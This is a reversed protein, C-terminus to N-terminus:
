ALLRSKIEAPKTGQVKSWKTIKLSMPLAIIVKGEGSKGGAVKGGGNQRFRNRPKGQGNNQKTILLKITKRTIRINFSIFTM